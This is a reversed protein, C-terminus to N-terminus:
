KYTNFNLEAEEETWAWLFRNTQLSSPLSPTRWRWCPLFAIQQQCHVDWLKLQIDVFLLDEIKLGLLLTIIVCLCVQKYNLLSSNRSCHLSFIFRLRKGSINSRVREPKFPYFLGFHLHHGKRDKHTNASRGHAAEVPGADSAGRRANPPGDATRFSPPVDHEAHSVGCGATLLCFM